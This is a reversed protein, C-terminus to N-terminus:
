EGDGHLLRRGPPVDNVWALELGQPTQITVTPLLPNVKAATLRDSLDVFAAATMAERRDASLEKWGPGTTLVVPLRPVKQYTGIGYPLLTPVPPLVEVKDFVPKGSAQQEQVWATFARAADAVKPDTITSRPYAPPLNGAAPAQPPPPPPKCGTAIALAGVSLIHRAAVALSRNVNGAGQRDRSALNVCMGQWRKLLGLTGRNM